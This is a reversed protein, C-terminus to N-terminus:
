AWLVRLIIANHDTLFRQHPWRADHNELPLIDARVQANGGQGRVFVYDLQIAWKSSVLPLPRYTPRPDEALPDSAGSQRIFEEYLFARRPFNFDGCAIVLADAPEARIMAALERAQDRQIRAMGNELRWDGAYNAQLHTNLVVIPQAESEIESRLVGKHFAWDAFGASLWRGRNEFAAFQSCALPAQSLTVLGGTPAFRNPASAVHAYQPLRGRLLPIYANQQIEQLALVTTNYAALKHALHELRFWALFFPLGFTNLTLLSFQPM